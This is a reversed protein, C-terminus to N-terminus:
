TQWPKSPFIKSKGTKLEKEENHTTPIRTQIHIVRVVKRQDPKFTSKSKETFTNNTLIATFFFFVTIKNHRIEIDDAHM